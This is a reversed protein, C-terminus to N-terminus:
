AAPEHDQPALLGAGKLATVTVTKGADVKTIEIMPFAPAYEPKFNLSGAIKVAGTASHDAGAERRLRTRLQRAAEKKSERPEDSV